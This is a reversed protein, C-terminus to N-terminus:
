PATAFAEAPLQARKENFTVLAQDFNWNAVDLCLRSYEANMSTQKCLEIIMQQKQVEESPQSAPASVSAPLLNYVKLSLLDSIVRIPNRGPVGPGLVFTRSFSRKATKMTDPEQDEFEGHITIIIGDVGIPNQGTPDALGHVPHCDIIYKDLQTPLDPHRTPPLQQWVGQILHTGTFLRQQRASTHTIKTHNRSFKIYAGWTPPHLDPAHPSRSNVAISFTSQDDYYKAALSNRGADYMQIFETIFNEGVGNIDRFDAGSQPIPTPRTAAEEAAVQEATRVQVGSLNLLKPFWSTLEEKYSPDMVEIPNDNLLLTQCNRLRHRWKQLGKIDKFQNQSLDLNVLDPFTDTLSMIQLVDDVNNGSLSISVVADRKAQPTKFLQECIAMLTRFLKEPTSEGNFFGRQALAPDEGLASLNLLKANVDYRMSLVGRLHQKIELANSSLTSSLADSGGVPTTDASQSIRLTTGAFAFGNVKLIEEADEKTSTIYVFDGKIHSKKIRIHRATQGVTQAKRELFTLLEKLGGGENSAAKSSMLGEVVLTMTAPARRDRASTIRSSMGGPGGNLARQIIQQAKATPRPGRSSTAASRPPPRSAQGSQASHNNGRRGGRSSGNTGTPGDMDLDGDRDTRVAGAGRRKAVGSRTTAKGGNTASNRPNRAGSPASGKRPGTPPAM